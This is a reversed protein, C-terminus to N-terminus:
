DNKPAALASLQESLREFLRESPEVTLTLRRTSSRRLAFPFVLAGGTRRAGCCERYNSDQQSGGGKPETERLGCVAPPRCFNRGIRNLKRLAPANLHGRVEVLMRNPRKLDVAFGRQSKFGPLIAFRVIEAMLIPQANLQAQ